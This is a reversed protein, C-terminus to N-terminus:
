RNAFRLGNLQQYGGDDDEQDPGDLAGDRGFEDVLKDGGAVRGDDRVLGHLGGAGEGVDEAVVVVHEHPEHWGLRAVKAAGKKRWTPPAHNGRRPTQGAEAQSAHPFLTKRMASLLYRATTKSSYFSRPLSVSSGVFSPPYPTSESYHWRHRTPLYIKMYGLIGDAILGGSSRRRSHCTFAHCAGEVHM